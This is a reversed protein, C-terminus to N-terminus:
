LERLSDRTFIRGPASAKVSGGGAQVPAVGEVDLTVVGKAVDKLWSEAQKFATTVPSDKDAAKGHLYYRAIDCATKTLVKPVVSLPLRYLKALYGDILADADGLARNVPTDDITTAPRNVTDTLQILEKETFRDILDQKTAYGM